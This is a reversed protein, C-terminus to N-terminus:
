RAAGSTADGAVADRWLPLELRFHAGPGGQELLEVTGGHAEVVARAVALGLGSGGPRTTFFPEFLRARLEAPVGPGNDRVDIAVRNETLRVCALSVGGAGAECANDVLNELAGALAQRSGRLLAQAAEIRWELRVGRAELRPVLHETVGAILDGAAVDEMEFHGQRAFLLMDRVLGELHRLV